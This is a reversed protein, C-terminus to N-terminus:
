VADATNGMPSSLLRFREAASVAGPAHDGDDGGPPPEPAPAPTTANAPLLKTLRDTLRLIQDLDGQEVALDLGVGLVRALEARAAAVAAPQGPGPVGAAAMLEAVRGTTPNPAGGAASSHSPDPEAAPPAVKAGPAPGAPPQPLETVPAVSAYGGHTPRRRDRQRRRTM